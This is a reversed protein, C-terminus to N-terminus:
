TNSVLARKKLDIVIVEIEEVGNYQDSITQWYRKLASALEDISVIEDGIKWRKTQNLSVLLFVGCGATEERLYDGVM